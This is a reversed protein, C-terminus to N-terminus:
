FDIARRISMRSSKITMLYKKKLIWACVSDSINSFYEITLMLEATIM